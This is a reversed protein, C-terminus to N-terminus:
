LLVISLFPTPVYRFCAPLPDRLTKLFLEFESPEDGAVSDSSIFNLSKYFCEFSRNSLKMSANISRHDVPESNVNRSEEKKNDMSVAVDKDANVDMKVPTDIM